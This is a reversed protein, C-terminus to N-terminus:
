QTVLPHTQKMLPYFSGIEVLSYITTTIYQIFKAQLFIDSVISLSYGRKGHIVASKLYLVM